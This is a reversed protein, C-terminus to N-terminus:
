IRGWELFHQHKVVFLLFICTKDKEFPVRCVIKWLAEKRVRYAHLAAEGSSARGQSLHDRESTREIKFAKMPPAGTIERRVSSRGLAHAAADTLSRCSERGHPGSGKTMCPRESHGERPHLPREVALRECLGGPEQGM